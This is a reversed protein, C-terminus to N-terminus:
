QRHHARRWGYKGSLRDDDHLRSGTNRDRNHDDPVTFDNGARPISRQVFQLKGGFDRQRQHVCFEQGTRCCDQQDHGVATKQCVFEFEAAGFGDPQPFQQPSIIDQKFRVLGNAVDTATIVYSMSGPTTGALPLPNTNSPAGTTVGNGVVEITLPDVNDTVDARTYNLTIIAGEMLNTFRLIDQPTEFGVPFADPCNNGDKCLVGTVPDGGCTIDIFNGQQAYSAESWATLFFAVCATGLITKGIMRGLRAFLRM